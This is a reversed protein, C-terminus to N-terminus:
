QSFMQIGRKSVWANVKGLKSMGGSPMVQWHSDQSKGKFGLCWTQCHGSTVDFDQM